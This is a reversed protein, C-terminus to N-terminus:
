LRVVEDSEMSRYLAAVLEITKVNDAVSSRPTSGTAIADLVSGMTGIFADPFWRQTVPYPVWGDTPVVTSTVELTDPRGDPYDYMLGLTGRIAGATGEIRFEATNDNGPNMHNAYILASSGNAFRFSSQTRTEGVPYQGPVRGGISYVSTPEGMFWRLTDHYHISHVMIELREMTKAWSWLKWDTFANVSLTFTTLEGLWGLEIMRHSAAIGEDFRLQQNVAAVIGADAALGALERATEPDVTFPKQSLIHRGAAVAARFIPPQQAVPVAIDVVKVRDDALLEDLDAYVRPIGHRDAVDRARDLDVDTIGVVELGAKRYAVLHQGDVIGGAGVIAIPLKHAEPITLRCSDSIDHFLDIM